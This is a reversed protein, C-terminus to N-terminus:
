SINILFVNLPPPVYQGADDSGELWYRTTKCSTDLGNGQSSSKEFLRWKRWTGLLFDFQSYM